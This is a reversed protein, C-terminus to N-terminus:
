TTIKEALLQLGYRKNSNKLRTPINMVVGGSRGFLVIKAM